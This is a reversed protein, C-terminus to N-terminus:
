IMRSIHAENVFVTDGTSANKIAEQITPFDDPVTITRSQAKVTTPPLIVLSLLFLAILVFAFGKSLSGM